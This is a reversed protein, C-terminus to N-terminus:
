DNCKVGHLECSRELDKMDRNRIGNQEMCAVAMAAIKRMIHLAEEDCQPSAFRSVAERAEQLYDEMYLIWSPVDHRGKSMVGGWLKNQYEREKRIAELAEETKTNM